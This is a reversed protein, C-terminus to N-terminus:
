LILYKYYYRVAGENRTQILFRRSTQWDNVDWRHFLISLSGAQSNALQFVDLAEKEVFYCRTGRRAAVAFSFTSRFTLLCEDCMELFVVDLLASRHDYDAKRVADTQIVFKGFTQLFWNEMMKADSAFGFVTPKERLQALLFPAVVNMTQEFSHSYFQGPYQIRLHVGLVRVNTPVVAMARKAAELIDPELDIIYNAMFYMAHMGFNQQLFASTQFHGYAMPAYILQQLDMVQKSGFVRSFDEWWFADHVAIYFANEFNPAVAAEITENHDVIGRSYHYVTGRTHQRVGAKLHFGKVVMARNDMLALM